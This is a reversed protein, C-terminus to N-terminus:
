ARRDPLGQLHFPQLGPLVPLLADALLVPRALRDRDAARHGRDGGPSSVHRAADRAGPGFDYHGAPRPPEHGIAHRRCFATLAPYSLSLGQALLEEHVRVLNGKCKALLGKIEDKHPEARSPRELPPVEAAGSGHAGEEGGGALDAAGPRDSPDRRGPEQAHPDGGAHRSRANQKEWRNQLDVFDAQVQRLARSAREREPPLLGGRAAPPRVSAPGPGGAHAPRLDSGGANSVGASDKQVQQEVRLVLLPESVVLERTKDNGSMYAQYLQGMQRTSLRMEKIAEVLRLCDGENARALPVLYKMAAHPVIGGERVRGQIAEPLERALAVRRSVWSVSRDLRRALEAFRLAHGEHLVRLLWGQELASAGGESHVTQRFILADAETMEWVVGAVADRHLRKLCRVRKHGDVVVYAEARRVVVIPTQQGHDALSALLRREREPQRVRLSEYRCDLQHFELEM